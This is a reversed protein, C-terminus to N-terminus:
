VWARFPTRHLGRSSLEGRLMNAGGEKVAEATEITQKENEVSCPGAIVCFGDGVRVHGVHVITKENEQLASLKINKM